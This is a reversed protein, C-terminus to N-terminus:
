AWRVRVRAFMFLEGMSTRSCSGTGRDSDHRLSEGARRTTPIRCDSEGPWRCRRRATRRRMAATRDFGAFRLVTRVLRFIRRWPLPRPVNTASWEGSGEFLIRLRCLLLGIGFFGLIVFIGRDDGGDGRGFFASLRCDGNRFLVVYSDQLFLYQVGVARRSFSRLIWLVGLLRHLLRVRYGLGDGDCALCLCSVRGVTFRGCGFLDVRGFM